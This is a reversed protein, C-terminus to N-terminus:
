SRLPVAVSDERPVVIARSEFPLVMLRDDAAVVVVGEGDTDVLVAGSYTLTVPRGTLTYAGYGIGLVYTRPFLVDQGTLTYAGQGIALARQVYLGAGQGTLAYSGQGVALLRQALLSVDQGSLTYSGQGMAMPFSGAPTYTLTVDQGTLAYSGQGMALSYNTLSTYTLAVDQGTLAYTGQGMGLLRQTALGVDQGTLAYSGQDMALLSQRLLGVGQGSLTYSGQGMGLLRQSTLAVNQGTLAYSGQGVALTYAGGGAAVWLRRQRAPFLLTPDRLLAWITDDDLAQDTIAALYTDNFGETGQFGTTLGYGSSRMNGNGGSTSAKQGDFFVTITTGVKRGAVILLSNDKITKSVTATFAAPSSDVYSASVGTASSYVGMGWGPVSRDNGYLIGPPYLSMMAGSFVAFLTCSPNSTGVPRDTFYWYHCEGPDTYANPRNWISRGFRGQRYPSLNAAVVNVTSRVGISKGDSRPLWIQANGPFVSKNYTECGQPLLLGRDPLILSSM